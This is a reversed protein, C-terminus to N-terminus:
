KSIQPEQRARRPTWAQRLAIPAIVHRALDSLLVPILLLQQSLGGDISRVVILLNPSELARPAAVHVAHVPAVEM